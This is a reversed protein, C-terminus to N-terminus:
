EWMTVEDGSRRGINICNSDPETRDDRREGARLAIVGRSLKEAM